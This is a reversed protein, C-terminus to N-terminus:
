FDDYYHWTCHCVFQLVYYFNESSRKWQKMRLNYNKRSNTGNKVARLLQYQMLIVAALVVKSGDDFTSFLFLM